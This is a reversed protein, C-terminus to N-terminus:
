PRALIERVRSPTVGEVADLVAEVMAADRNRWLRAVCQGAKWDGLPGLDRLARVGIEYHTRWLSRLQRGLANVQGVTVTSGDVTMLKWVTNDTPLQFRWADLGANTPRSLRKARPGDIQCVMGDQVLRALIQARGMRTRTSCHGDFEVTDRQCLLEDKRWGDIVALMMDNATGSPWLRAAMDSVMGLM